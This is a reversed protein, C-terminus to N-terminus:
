QWKRCYSNFSVQVAASQSQESRCDRAPLHVPLASLKLVAGEWYCDINPTRSLAIYIVM